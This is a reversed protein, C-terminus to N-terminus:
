VFLESQNDPAGGKLLLKGTKKLTKLRTSVPESDLDSQKIEYPAFPAVQEAPLINAKILRMLTSDSVGCYSKAQAMNLIGDDKHKPAPNIGQKRRIIGVSSKTWRNGKGTKRGLKSLVMAIESDSYRPAMKQIVELDETATKHAQNAPLPRPITLSSHSGGQWHIIFNLFQKEKDVDVIIEKILCRTIKKKLAMPCGPQHWTDAFHKGLEIITQKDQGSLTQPVAQAAYLTCKIQEVQELKENWRQELTDVVLRNTPDAQDYQLFARQAEYEVQQLQRQLAQQHDSHNNGLKEIARVSAAVAEPSIIQLVEDAIRKDPTSGGFSICYRGASVYDGGCFYRPTTGQKGWYRVHLKHGCRACRLLGTLLGHGERVALIAQDPQFNTGNSDIMRQHRLYTEWSIYGEHHDKIFVKAQDPTQIASQRKRLEGQELVKEVPRRGYVYAGAYIPNHLVSPIFTQAPLKWVLQIQGGVPKNVPLEIGNDLFWGYTQRISGLEQFTEFVLMIAEQVRRNPDKVIQDGDRIYGPAVVTFLEGRKAKAEKGQLMRMRLVNLEAVSITGKIGLVLQDDSRNPDYVTEEDGILTNSFQCIEILHCWDKDTRSLRSIERTLVMGVDGVAISTLLQQFGPRQRAGSAASAGLDKDIIEVQKFGLHSARDALAYQLRQSEINRKVQGLSSQRLYVIAKRALHDTNIKTQSNHEIMTQKRRNM